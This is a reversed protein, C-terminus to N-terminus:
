LFIQTIRIRITFFVQNLHLIRHSDFNRKLFYFNLTKIKPMIECCVGSLLETYYLIYIPVYHLLLVKNHKGAYSDMYVITYAHM